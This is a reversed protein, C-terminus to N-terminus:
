KIRRAPVGVYTGVEEIDKVAIAGAGIMCKGCVNVNNKVIAGAGIWTSEGIEVTGCIHAGVSVHVYDGVRCDHDVSACTNIICGRGITTDPNIVAGAMVVTGEGIKVESGIIAASHILTIIHAGLTLLQETVKKRIKANGIAVIFDANDIYQEADSSKGVVPFGMCEKVDENDDLFVIEDYKQVKLAIDAVVKGHGSAGIIILKKKM